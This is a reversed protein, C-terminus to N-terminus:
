YYYLHSGVDVTQMFAYSWDPKIDWRHYHTSYWTLDDYYLGAAVQDIVEEALIQAEAWAELEKPKDSKGDWFWSFQDRDTVVGKIDNPFRSDTVRNITVHAVSRQSTTSDSRAEYYINLAMWYIDEPDARKVVSQEIPPLIISFRVLPDSILQILGQGCTLGIWIGVIFLLAKM